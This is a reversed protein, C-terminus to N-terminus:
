RRGHWRSPSLRALLSPSRMSRVPRSASITNRCISISLPRRSIATAWCFRYPASTPAPKWCTLPLATAFPPHLPKGIGARKAAECCAYWVVKTTIPYDATHWRGGPFLWGSKQPSLRRYHQRLEELLHPSLMLDRDKRGKGGRIHVVMRQSDIDAIKLNALEARRLGTAYLTILITRHFPTLASEILRSVEDRSLIVPLHFGKKPYPTEEVSGSRKLTKIFFFRLAGVQQNVSNDTLKRDRFLHSVYERIQEPGLQDPPRHFYRAFEEIARLYARTTNQTYNRRELEELMMKRLHTV